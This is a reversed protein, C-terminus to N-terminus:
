VGSGREGDRGLDEERAHGDVLRLFILGFIKEVLLLV